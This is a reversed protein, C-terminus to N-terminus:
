PSVLLESILDLMNLVDLSALQRLVEEAGANEPYYLLLGRVDLPRDLIGDSM